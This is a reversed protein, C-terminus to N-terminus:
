RRGGFGRGGFGRGGFGRGYFGRGYFGRGYYSRPGYGFAFSPGWYYPSYYPYPPYYGYYYYPPPPSCNYGVCPISPHPAAEAQSPREYANTDVYHFAQPARETSITVPAALRFTLVSEPYIVTPHGRTLLVGLTGVVLGAGAGVAAGVGGNVAAGVAAGAGTTSALAGADRGLSKPGTQGTFQTQIPVQQGDVLTLDTLQIALRSVGKVRGAKEAEAVRGGVTQGRQAAVVGDVVLPQVLTASFADGALNRDSSLYQDVRVTVFTGANITLRPPVTPDQPANSPPDSFRHWGPTPPSSQQEPPAANPPPADAQDQAFAWVSATLLSLLLCYAVTRIPKIPIRSM